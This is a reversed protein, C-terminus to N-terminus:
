IDFLEMDDFEEVDIEYFINSNIQTIRLIEDFKIDYTLFSINLHEGHFDQYTKIKINIKEGIKLRRRIKKIKQKFNDKHEVYILHPKTDNYYLSMKENTDTNLFDFFFNHMYKMHISTSKLFRDKIVCGYKKYIKVKKGEKDDLNIIGRQVGYAKKMSYKNKLEIKKRKMKKTSIGREREHKKSLEKYINNIEKSSAVGLTKRPLRTRLKNMLEIYPHLEEVEKDGEGIMIKKQREEEEKNKEIKNDEELEKEEEISLLNHKQLILKRKNNFKKLKNHKKELKKQKKLEQKEIRKKYIEIEYLRREMDKIISEKVKVNDDDTREARHIRKRLEIYMKEMKKDNNNKIQDLVNGLLQDIDIDEKNTVNELEAIRNMIETMQNEQKLKMDIKKDLEDYLKKDLKSYLKKDLEDYLKKDLKDVNDNVIDGITKELDKIEVNTDKKAILLTIDNIQKQLLEYQDDDDDVTEEEEDDETEIREREKEELYKLKDQMSLLMSNIKENNKNNKQDKTMEDIKSNFSNTLSKLKNELKNYNELTIRKIFNNVLKNELDKNKQDNNDMLKNELSKMREELIKERKELEEFIKNKYQEFKEEKTLPLPREMIKEVRSRREKKRQQRERQRKQREEEAADMRERLSQEDMEDDDDDIIIRRRPKSM